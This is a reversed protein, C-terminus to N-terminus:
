GPARSSAFSFLSMAAVLDNRNVTSLGIEDVDRRHDAWREVDANGIYRVDALGM